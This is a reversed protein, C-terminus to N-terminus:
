PTGPVSFIPTRTMHMPIVPDIWGTTDNVALVIL